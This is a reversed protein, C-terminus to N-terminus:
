SLPHTKNNCWKPVYLLHLCLKAGSIQGILTPTDKGVCNKKNKKSGFTANDVTHLNLCCHQSAV